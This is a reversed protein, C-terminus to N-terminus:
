PVILTYTVVASDAGVFAGTGNVAFVFLGLYRTIDVKSQASTSIVTQSAAASNTSIAAFSGPEGTSSDQLQLLGPRAFNTSVYLQVTGNTSTMSSFAPRVLYSTSYLAGTTSAARAAGNGTSVGLGDVTGFDIAYDSTAGATLSPPGTADLSFQVARQVAISVSLTATDRKNADNADNATFLITATQTGTFASSGNIHAILAGMDMTFTSKDPLGARLAAPAGSSTSLVLQNAAAGCSTAVCYMVQILPPAGGGRPFNSSVYATVSVSASGGWGTLNVRFPSAYVPGSGLAVAYVGSARTGVGLGNGNGLNMTAAGSNGGLAVGSAASLINITPAASAPAAWSVVVLLVITLTRM